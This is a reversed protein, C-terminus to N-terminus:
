IVYPVSCSGHDCSRWEQLLDMQCCGYISSSFLGLMGLSELTGSVAVHPKRIALQVAEVRPHAAIIDGAVTEALRELLQFPKGEM